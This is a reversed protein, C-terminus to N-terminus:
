ETIWTNWALVSAGGQRTVGGIRNHHAVVGGTDGIKILPVQAYLLEQFEDNLEKRRAQDSEEQLADVVAQTEDDCWWGVYACLKMFPQEVPDNKMGYDTVFLEWAAEDDRHALATSWDYTEIEVNLGVAELQQEIVVAQNYFRVLDRSTVIRIVSGDYDSEAILQEARAPDAMDYLEEAATSHWETEKLQISPDLRFNDAGLGATLIETHSLAAQIAQRLKLDSTVESAHNVLIAQFGTPDVREITLNPSGELTLLADASSGHILDYEGADFGALRAGENAVPVFEIADLYQPKHGGYGDPGDGPLASYDDFRVLRILRGTDYEDLQYPGTGVVESLETESSSEVVSAPYIALGQTNISIASLFAGFPREFDFVVTHEDPASVEALRGAVERGISSIEAWREYSAIVDQATMVEGNHFNVGERLQVTWTLGDDSVEASEALMPVNAGATDRVYLFEVMNYAVTAVVGATSQQIDLTPPDAGLAYNLVGGTTAGAAQAGEESTADGDTGDAGDDGGSSGGCGALVLAGLTLLAILRLAPHVLAQLNVVRANM